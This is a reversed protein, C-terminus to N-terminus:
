IMFQNYREIVKSAFDDSSVSYEGNDMRNKIDNVLDERIDATEKVAKKAIQFDRGAQSIELQDATDSESVKNTKKITKNYMQAVRQINEIRMVFVGEKNANIFLCFVLVCNNDSIKLFLKALKQIFFL